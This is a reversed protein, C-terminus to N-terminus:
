TITMKQYDVGDAWIYNIINEFECLIRPAYPDPIFIEFDGASIPFVIFVKIVYDIGYFYAM